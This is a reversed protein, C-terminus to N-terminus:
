IRTGRLGYHLAPPGGERGTLVQERSARLLQVATAAELEAVGTQSRNIVDLQQSYM